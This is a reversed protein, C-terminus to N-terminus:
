LRAPKRPLRRSLANLWSDPLARLLWGIAAMPRPFTIRGRDRALGKRIIQAARDPEILFPMPFGNAGTMPTRVFGPCVVCVSVRDAAAEARLGEGWARVAAKSACYAPAGAMGRFGAVSSILAVQGHRRARMAPLVPLVTNLVGSLNVAFVARTQAANEGLGGTGASIGANAILLDIPTATDIACLAAEMAAADAVDVRHLRVTAGAAGATDATARLRGEDRGFLHLTRGPAAYAAVLARGIGGSAGTIVITSPEPLVM